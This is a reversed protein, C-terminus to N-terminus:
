KDIRIRTTISANGVKPTFNFKSVVPSPNEDVILTLSKVFSEEFQPQNFNVSIPVIAADLARYPTDLSFLHSGDKIVDEGFIWEKLDNNWTVPEPPKDKALSSFSIFAVVTMLIFEKYLYRM